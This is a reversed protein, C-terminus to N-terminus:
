GDLVSEPGGTVGNGVLIPVQASCSQVHPHFLGSHHSPAPTVSAPLSLLVLLLRATRDLLEEDWGTATPHAALPSQSSSALTSSSIM